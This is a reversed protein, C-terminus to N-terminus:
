LVNVNLDYDVTLRVLIANVNLWVHSLIYLVLIVHFDVCLYWVEVVLENCLYRPYM